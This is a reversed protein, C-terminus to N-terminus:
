SWNFTIPVEIDPHISRCVPCASAAAQLKQRQEETLKASINFTVGLRAIRRVPVQTMEKTVVVTSDSLDIEMRQAVIGMITMMCSGLATAVLDSPSFSEGNGMNDKPADTVLATGSDIHRASCRLKGQYAIQIEVM